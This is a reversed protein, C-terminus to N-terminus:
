NKLTEITVADIEFSGDEAISFYQRVETSVQRQVARIAEAQAAPTNMRKLWASFAIPVRRPTIAVLTFGAAALSACLETESYNRVHSPDRFLEMAQLFTDLVPKAPSITDMFVGRGGPKLVRSAENFAANLDSWHHLSFRTAVLDFEAEGFPLTEVAGQWTIINGLGRRKSEAAVADLMERSLDYAIVSAVHPAVTFSVHGGGCGLDLARAGHLGEAIAELRKLDEGQSHTSSEVYAAARPGFQAAVLADQTTEPM